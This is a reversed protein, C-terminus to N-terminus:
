SALASFLAGWRSVRGCRSLRQNNKKLNSSPRKANQADLIACVLDAMWQMRANIRTSKQEKSGGTPGKPENLRSIKESM